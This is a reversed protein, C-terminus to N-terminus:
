RTKGSYEICPQSQVWALYNELESKMSTPIWSDLARSASEAAISARLIWHTRMCAVDQTAICKAEEQIPISQVYASRAVTRNVGIAYGALGIGLAAFVLLSVFFSRSM